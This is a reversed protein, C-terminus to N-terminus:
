AGGLTTAMLASTGTSGGALGAADTAVTVPEVTATERCTAM